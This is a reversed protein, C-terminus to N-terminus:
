EKSASLDNRAFEKALRLFRQFPEPFGRPKIVPSFGPTFSLLVRTRFWHRRPHCSM